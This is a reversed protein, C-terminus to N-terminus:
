LDDLNLCTKLTRTPSARHEPREGVRVQKWLSVTGCTHMNEWPAERHCGGRNGVAKQQDENEHDSDVGKGGAIHVRPSGHLM